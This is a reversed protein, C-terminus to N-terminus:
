SGSAPTMGELILDVVTEVDIAEVGPIMRWMGLHMMPGVLLPIVADLDIGSRLEGREIGDRIIQRLVERRPELVRDHVLSAVAPDRVGEAAAQMLVRGRTTGPAQRIAELVRILRDRTGERTGEGPVSGEFDDNLRILSGLILEERSAFRRYISTKAVGCRAAVAEVTFGDFGEDALVELAATVVDVDVRSDRPRGPRGPETTRAGAM